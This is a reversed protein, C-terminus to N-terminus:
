RVDKLWGLGRKPKRKTIKGGYAGSTPEMQGYDYGTSDYGGGTSGASSTDGGATGGTTSGGNGTLTNYGGIIAGANGILSNMINPAPGSATSNEYTTMPMPMGSTLGQLEQLRKMPAEEKEKFTQYNVDAVKQAL